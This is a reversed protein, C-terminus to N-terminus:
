LVVVIGGLLLHVQLLAALIQECSSSTAFSPPTYAFAQSSISSLLVQFNLSLGHSSVLLM